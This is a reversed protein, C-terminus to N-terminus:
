SAPFSPFYSFSHLQSAQSIPFYSTRRAYYHFLAFIVLFPLEVYFHGFDLHSFCFAGYM